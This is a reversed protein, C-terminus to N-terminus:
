VIITRYWIRIEKLNKETKDALKQKLRLHDKDMLNRILSRKRKDLGMCNRYRLVAGINPEM